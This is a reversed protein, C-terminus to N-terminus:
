FEILRDDCFNQFIVEAVIDLVHIQPNQLSDLGATCHQFVSTLISLSHRWFLFVDSIFIHISTNKIRKSICLRITNLKNHSYENVTRECIKGINIWHRELFIWINFTNWIIFFWELIVWTFCVIPQNNCYSLDLPPWNHQWSFEVSYLKM